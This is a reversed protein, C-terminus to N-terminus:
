SLWGFIQLPRHYNPTCLRGGGGVKHEFPNLELTEFWEWMNLEYQMKHHIEFQIIVKIKYFLEFILYVFIRILYVFNTNTTGLLHFLYMEAFNQYNQLM